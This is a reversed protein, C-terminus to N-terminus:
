SAASRRATRSGCPSRATATPSGRRASRRRDHRRQTASLRSRSRPMVAGAAGSVRRRRRRGHSRRGADSTARPASAPRLYPRRRHAILARARDGRGRLDDDPGAGPLDQEDRRDRDEQDRHVDRDHADGQGPMRSENSSGALTRAHTKVDYLMVNAASSRTAPLSPSRHPWRSANRPPTAATRRRRAPRRSRGSRRPASRRGRADLRHAARQDVRRREGQQQGLERQRAPRHRDTDPTADGAEAAGDGRREAGSSTSAAPQRATNKMLRGNTAAASTAPQRDQRAALVALRSRKSGTATGSAAIATPARTSTMTSTESHPQVSGRVMTAHRTTAATRSGANMTREARCGAGSSSRSRNRRRLKVTPLMAWASNTPEVNPQSTSIGDNKRSTHPQDGSFAPKPRAGAAAIPAMSDGNAPRRASRMPWRSSTAAPHM